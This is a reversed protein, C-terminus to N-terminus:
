LLEQPITTAGPAAEGAPPEGLLLSKLKADPPQDGLWIKLLTRFFAPEPFPEGQVKGRFTAVFGVGPVWDMILADSPLVRSYAAMLQGIRSLNPVIKVFDEKTANTEIGKTLLRGLENTSLDRLPRLVLRKPTSLDNVEALSRTKKPLYLALVYMQFILKHRVGAGNLVLKTGNANVEGPVRVGSVEVAQAHAQTLPWGAASLLSWALISRRHM